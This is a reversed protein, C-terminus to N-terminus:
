QPSPGNEPARDVESAYPFGGSFAIAHAVQYCAKVAHEAEDYTLAVPNKAKSGLEYADDVARHAGELLKKRSPNSREWLQDLYAHLANVEQRVEHTEGTIPSTHHKEGKYLERGMRLIATRAETAAVAHRGPRRLADAAAELQALVAGGANFVTAADRGFIEEWLRAVRLQTYVSSTWRHLEERILLLVRRMESYAIAARKWHELGEASVPAQPQAPPEIAELAAIPATAVHSRDRMHRTLSRYGDPDVNEPDHIARLKLFLETGNRHDPDTTGQPPRPADLGALEEALWASRMKDGELDALRRAALVVPALPEGAELRQLIQRALEQAEDREEVEV